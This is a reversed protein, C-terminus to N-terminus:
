RDRRVDFGSFEGAYPEDIVELKDVRALRPGCACWEIFSAIGAHSGEALVEVGGDALNCVWGTLSLSLAKDRASARYFVGQVRGSVLIRVRRHM